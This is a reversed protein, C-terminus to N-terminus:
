QPVVRFASATSPGCSHPRVPRPGCPSSASTVAVCQLQFVARPHHHPSHAQSCPTFIHFLLGALSGWLLSSAETARSASNPSCDCFMLVAVSPLLPPRPPRPHTQPTRLLLGLGEPSAPPVPFSLQDAEESSPKLDSKLSFKRVAAAADEQVHSSPRQPLRKSHSIGLQGSMGPEPGRIPPNPTSLQAQPYVLTTGRTQALWFVAGAEAWAHRPSEPGTVSAKLSGLEPRLVSNAGAKGSGRADKDARLPQAM